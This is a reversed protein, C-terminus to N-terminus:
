HKQRKQREKLAKKEAQKMAREGGGGVVILFVIGMVIMVLGSSFMDAMFSFDGTFHVGIAILVIPLFLFPAFYLALLGLLLLFAMSLGITKYFVYFAIAAILWWFTQVLKKLSVFIIM